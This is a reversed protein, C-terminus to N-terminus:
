PGGFTRWRTRSLMLEVQLDLEAAVCQELVCWIRTTVLPQRWPSGMVLVTGIEKLATRFVGTLEEPSITQHIHQDLCFCDMWIFLSRGELAELIQTLSMKWAYSLFVDAKTNVFQQTAEDQGLKSVWSQQEKTQPKILKDVLTYINQSAWEPNEEALKILYTTHIGHIPYSSLTVPPAATKLDFSSSLPAAPSSVKVGKDFLKSLEAVSPM